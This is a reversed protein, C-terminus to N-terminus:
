GLTLANLMNDKAITRKVEGHEWPFIVWQDVTKLCFDPKIRSWPKKFLVATSIEQVGKKKLYKIAADMTGGSDILDDVLLVRKGRTNDSLTSLIRPRHRMMIGKYSKINIIDMRANLHDSVAMALPVGGRAIGVVLDYRKQTSKVMKALSSAIRGYNAWSVYYFKAM